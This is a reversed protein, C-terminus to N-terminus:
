LVGPRWVTKKKKEKRKKSFEKRWRSECLAGIRMTQHVLRRGEGSPIEYNLEVVYPVGHRMYFMKKVKLPNAM